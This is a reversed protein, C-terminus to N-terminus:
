FSFLGLMIQQMCMICVNHRGVELELELGLKM